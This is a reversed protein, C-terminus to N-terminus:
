PAYDTDEVVIFRKKKLPPRYIQSGKKKSNRVVAYFGSSYRIFPVAQEDPILASFHDTELRVVRVAEAMKHIKRSGDLLKYLDVVGHTHILSSVSKHNELEIPIMVFGSPIEDSIQDAPGRASIEEKNNNFGHLFVFFLSCGTLSLFVIAPQKYNKAWQLINNKM